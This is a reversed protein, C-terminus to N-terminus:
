QKFLFPYAQPHLSVRLAVVLIGKLNGVNRKKKCEPYLRMWPRGETIDPDTETKGNVWLITHVCYDREPRWKRMQLVPIIVYFWDCLAM